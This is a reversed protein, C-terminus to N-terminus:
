PDLGSPAKEDAIDREVVDLPQELREQHQFPGCDGQRHPTDLGGSDAAQFPKVVAEFGGPVPVVYQINGQGVATEVSLDIGGGAVFVHLGIQARQLGLALPQGVDTKGPRRIKIKVGM